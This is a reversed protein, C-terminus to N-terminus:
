SKDGLGELYGKAGEALGEAILDLNNAATLNEKERGNSVFACEILIAPMNAGLLVYFPAGKVGRDRGLNPVKALWHVLKSHVANALRDSETKKSTVMLDVLTAQLDTMKSLSIGNEKAAVRMTGRSGAKSLYFTEIGRSSPDGHGNCHISLFLDADQSNALATRDKLSLFRDDERTLLVTVGPLRTKICNKLRRSIGLTLDKEKVKGDRSVAGPDKGGHGPDIVIIYSKARTRHSRIPPTVDTVVPPAVSASRVPRTQAPAKEVPPRAPLPGPFFPNGATNLPVVSRPEVRRVSVASPPQAPKGSTAGVAPFPAHERKRASFDVGYGHGKAEPKISKGPGGQATRQAKLTYATKLEGLGAIFHSGKRHVRTFESLYVIALDLDEVGGFRQYLRLSAKGALFLSRKGADDKGASAIARFNGIVRLWEERTSDRSATIREFERRSQALSPVGNGPAGCFSWDAMSIALLM